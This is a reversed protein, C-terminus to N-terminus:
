WPVFVGSWVEKMISSDARLTTSDDRIKGGYCAYGGDIQMWEGVKYGMMSNSFDTCKDLKEYIMIVTCVAEDRSAGAVDTLYGCLAEGSLRRECKGFLKLVRPEKM